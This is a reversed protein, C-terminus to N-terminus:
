PSTGADATWAVPPPPPIEDARPVIWAALVGGAHSLHVAVEGANMPALEAVHLVRGDDLPTATTAIATRAITAELAGAAATLVLLRRPARADITLTADLTPAPRAVGGHKPDLIGADRAIAIAELMPAPVGAFRELPARLEARAGLAVLARAEDARMSVYRESAFTALLPARAAADGIAALTAVVYPRLRVDELSRALVAARAKVRAIAALVARSTEFDLGAKPAGEESWWVALEDAARADGREGLALAARRRWPRAADEKAHLMQEVLATQTKDMPAQM